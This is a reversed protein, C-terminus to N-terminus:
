RPTPCPEQAPDCGWAHRASEGYRQQVQIQRERLARCEADSESHEAVCRAYAAEAARLERHAQAVCGALLLVLGWGITRM